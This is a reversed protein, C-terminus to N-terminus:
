YIYIKEHFTSSFYNKLFKSSPKQLLFCILIYYFFSNLTKSQKFFFIHFFHNNKKKLKLLLGYISKYANQIFIIFPFCTYIPILFTKKLHFFIKTLLQTFIISNQKTQLYKIKSASLQFIYIFSIPSTFFYNPSQYFIFLYITFFM